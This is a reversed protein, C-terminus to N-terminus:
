KLTKLQGHWACKDCYTETDEVVDPLDSENLEPDFDIQGKNLDFEYIEFQDEPDKVYFRQSGCM